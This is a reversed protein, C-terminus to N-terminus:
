RTVVADLAEPNEMLRRARAQSDFFAFGGFSSSSSAAPQEDDSLQHPLDEISGLPPMDGYFVDEFERQILNFDRVGQKSIGGSQMLDTGRSLLDWRTAKHLKIDVQLAYCILELESRADMETNLLQYDNLITEMKHLYVDNKTQSYLSELYMLVSLHKDTSLDEPNFQQLLKITIYMATAATNLLGTQASPNNDALIGCVDSFSDLVKSLFDFTSKVEDAAIKSSKNGRVAAYNNNFVLLYRNIQNLMPEFGRIQELQAEQSLNDYVDLFQNVSRAYAHVVHMACLGYADKFVLKKSMASHKKTENDLLGLHKQYSTMAAKFNGQNWAKDGEIMHKSEYCSKM